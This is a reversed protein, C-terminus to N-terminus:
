KGIKHLSYLPNGSCNNGCIKITSNVFGIEQDLARWEEYDM